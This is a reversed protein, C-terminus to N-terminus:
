CFCALAQLPFHSLAISKGDTCYHHLWEPLAFRIKQVSSDVSVVGRESVSQISEKTLLNRERVKHEEDHSYYTLYRHEGEEDHEVIQVSVGPIAEVLNRVIPEDGRHLVNHHNENYIRRMKRFSVPQQESIIEKIEEIPLSTAHTFLKDIEGLAKERAAKANTYGVDCCLLMYSGPPDFKCKYIGVKCNLEEIDRLISGNKLSSFYKSYDFGNPLNLAVVDVREKGHFPSFCEVLPESKNPDQAHRPFRRFVDYCFRGRASVDILKSITLTVAHLYDYLPKLNLCTASIQMM